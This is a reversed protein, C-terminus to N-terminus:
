NTYSQLLQLLELASHVIFDSQWATIDTNYPVYGYAATITQMGVSKGAQIDTIADGIFMCHTPDINVDKCAKLMPDPHPKAHATTDACVITACNLKEFEFIKAVPETLATTKNTIIGWCINNSNLFNLVKKMGPFFQCHQHGLQHYIEIFETKLKELELQPLEINLLDHIIKMSGYSIHPLLQELTVTHYGHRELLCNLATLLDTATDLLTGDLDFFLAKIETNNIKLM